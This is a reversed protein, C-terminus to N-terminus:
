TVSTAYGGRLLICCMLSGYTHICVKPLPYSAKDQITVTVRQTAPKDVKDKTENNRDTTCVEEKELEVIHVDKM